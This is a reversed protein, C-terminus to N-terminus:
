VPLRLENCLEFVAEDAVGQGQRRVDVGGDDALEVVAADEGGAAEPVVLLHEDARPHAVALVAEHDDRGELALVAGGDEDVAAPDALLVAALARPGVAEDLALDGDLPQQALGPLLVHKSRFVPRVLAFEVKGVDM